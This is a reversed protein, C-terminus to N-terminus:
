QLKLAPVKVGFVVKLKIIEEATLIRSAMSMMADLSDQLSAQDKVALGRGTTSFAVAGQIAAFAQGARKADIKLQNLEQESLSPNKSKENLAEVLQQSAVQLVDYIDRNAPVVKKNGIKISKPTKDAPVNADDFIVTVNPLDGAPTSISRTTLPAPTALQDGISADPARLIVIKAARVRVHPSKSPNSMIEVAGGLTQIKEMETLHDNTKVVETGTKNASDLLEGTCGTLLVIMFLSLGQRRM